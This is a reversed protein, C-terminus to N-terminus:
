HLPIDVDERHHSAVPKDGDGQDKDVLGEETPGLLQLCCCPPLLVSTEQYVKM